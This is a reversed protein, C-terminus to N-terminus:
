HSYGTCFQMGPYQNGMTIRAASTVGAFAYRYTFYVWFNDLTQVPEQTDGAENYIGTNTFIYEQIFYDDHNQQTFAMIKRTITVGMSTHFKMVVMRDCFLDADFVDLSDYLTNSTGSVGDVYVDPHPYKGIMQIKRISKPFVMTFQNVPLRPGIGIVKVSKIAGEVPDNFDTCGIWLGKQRTTHQNDGYQAPWSLFNDPTLEPECGYDKFFCQAQGVRIHKQNQAYVVTHFIYAIMSFCIAMLLIRKKISKKHM